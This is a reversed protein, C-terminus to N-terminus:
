ECKLDNLDYIYEESNYKHSVIAIQVANNSYNLKIWCNNPIFLGQSPSNLIFTEKKGKYITEATITGTVAVLVEMSNRHAHLGRTINKPTKYTWFVRNIEFPIDKEFEAVSIYGLSDEGIKSFTILQPTNRKSRNATLM